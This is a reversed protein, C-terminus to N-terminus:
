EVFQLREPDLLTITRGDVNILAQQQLTNLMRSFTEPTLNLRAAIVAKSAPLRIAAEGTDAHRGLLYGIVRQLASRTTLEEIERVLRHLRLSLGALLRMAFEPQNHVAHLLPERSVFLVRSARLAEAYAPFPRNIFLVAEGFTGGPQVLEVVMEHGDPALLALKVQGELLLYFGNAPDGKQFLLEGRQLRRTTTGQAITQLEEPELEAFLAIGRLQTVLDPGSM